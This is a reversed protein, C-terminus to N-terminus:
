QDHGGNDGEGENKSRELLRFIFVPLKPIGQKGRVKSYYLVPVIWRDIRKKCVSVLTKGKNKHLVFLISHKCLKKRNLHHKSPRKIADWITKKFSIGFFRQAEDLNM